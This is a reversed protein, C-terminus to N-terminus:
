EVTHNQMFFTDKLHPSAGINLCLGLPREGLLNNQAINEMTLSLAKVFATISLHAMSNSIFISSKLYYNYRRTDIKQLRHTAVEIHLKAIGQCCYFQLSLGLKM